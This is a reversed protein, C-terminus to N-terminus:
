RHNSGDDSRRRNSILPGDDTALVGIEILNTAQDPGLFLTVDDDHPDAAVALLNRLAHRIDEDTIGHRHASALVPAEWLEVSDPYGSTM